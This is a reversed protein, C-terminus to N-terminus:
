RPRRPPAHSREELAVWHPAANRTSSWSLNAAPPNPKLDKFHVPFQNGPRARRDRATRRATNWRKPQEGIGDPQGVRPFGDAPQWLAQGTHNEPVVIMRVPEIKPVVERPNAFRATQDEDHRAINAERGRKPRPHVQPAAM